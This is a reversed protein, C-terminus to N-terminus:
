VEVKCDRCYKFEKNLVSNTVIIHGDHSLNTVLKEFEKMLEDSEASQKIFNSAPVQSSFSTFNANIHWDSFVAVTNNPVARMFPEITYEIGGTAPQTKVGSVIWTEGNANETILDGINYSNM